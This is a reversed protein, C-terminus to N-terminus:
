DGYTSISKYTQLSIPDMWRHNLVRFVEYTIFDSKILGMSIDFVGHHNTTGGVMRMHTIFALLKKDLEDLLYLPRGRKTSIVIQSHPMNAGLQSRYKKVSLTETLSPLKCKYKVVTNAIGCSNPHKTIKM